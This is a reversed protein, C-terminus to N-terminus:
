HNNPIGIRIIRGANDLFGKVTLLESSYDDVARALKQEVRAYTSKQVSVVGNTQLQLLKLSFVQQQKKIAAIFTYVNPHAAGIAKRLSNHWGELHNNTRPGLSFTMWEHSDSILSM